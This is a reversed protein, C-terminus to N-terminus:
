SVREWLRSDTLVSEAWLFHGTKHIPNTGDPYLDCTVYAAFLLYAYVRDRDADNLTATALDLMTWRTAVQDDEYMSFFGCATAIEYLHDGFLTFLGFDLVGTVRGDSVLVNGPHFDGHILRSPQDAMLAFFKDLREIPGLASFTAEPLTGNLTSTKSHLASRVYDRWSRTSSPDFLSTRGLPPEVRIRGISEATLLYQEMLTKNSLYGPIEAMPTGTLRREVSYTAGAVRGVELVSPLSFPAASTYLRAYFDKLTTLKDLDPDSYIKLVRNPDLSYVEAETGAALWIPNPLGLQTTVERALQDSPRM